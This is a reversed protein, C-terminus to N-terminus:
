LNEGGRPGKRLCTRSSVSPSKSHRSPRNPDNFDPSCECIPLAQGTQCAAARSRCRGAVRPICCPVCALAILWDRSLSIRDCNLTTVQSENLDKFRCVIGCISEMDSSCNERVPIVSKNFSIVSSTFLDDSGLGYFSQFHPLDTAPDKGVPAAIFAAIEALSRATLKSHSAIDAAIGDLLAAAKGVQGIDSTNEMERMLIFFRNAKELVAGGL